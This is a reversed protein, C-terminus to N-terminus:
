FHTFILVKHFDSENILLFSYEIFILCMLTEIIDIDRIKMYYDDKILPM